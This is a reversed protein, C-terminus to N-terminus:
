LFPTTTGRWIWTVIHKTLKIQTHNMKAGIQVEVQVLWKREQNTEISRM